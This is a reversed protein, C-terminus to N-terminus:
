IYFNFAVTPAKIYIRSFLEIFTSQNGGLFYKKPFQRGTIKAGTYCARNTWFCVQSFIYWCFIYKPLLYINLYEKKFYKSIYHLSGDM